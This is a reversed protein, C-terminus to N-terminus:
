NRRESRAIGVAEAIDSRHKRYEPLDKALERAQVALLRQKLARERTADGDLLAAGIALSLGLLHDSHRSLITDAQARALESLGAVIGVRGLDYRQDIDLSGVMQYAAIAMPAFFRVSDTQGSEDLSMVRDFLLEARQAPTLQSIDPGRVVGDATTPAGLPVEAESAARAGRFQQGAILATLAVLAIAAIAWPLAADGTKGFGRGSGLANAGCRHCFRAGASLPTSCEPCESGAITAGCSSCFRGTAAAGCAPCASVTTTM